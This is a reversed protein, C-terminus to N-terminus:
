ILKSSRFPHQFITNYQKAKKLNDGGEQLYKTHDEYLSGLSRHQSLKRTQPLRSCDEGVSQESPSQNASTESSSSPPLQMEKATAHCWLCCHRGSVTNSPSRTITYYKIYINYTSINYVIRVAQGQYVMCEASFSTTGLCSFEYLNEGSFTVSTNNM